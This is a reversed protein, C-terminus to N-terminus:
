ATKDLDMGDDFVDIEDYLPSVLKLSSESGSIFIGTMSNFIREGLQFEEPVQLYPAQIKAISLYQYGGFAIGSFEL